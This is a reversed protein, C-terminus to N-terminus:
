SGLKFSQRSDEGGSKFSKNPMSSLNRISVNAMEVSMYFANKCTASSAFYRSKMRNKQSLSGVSGLLGSAVYLNLATRYPAVHKGKMKFAVKSFCRSHWLVLQTLSIKFCSRYTPLIM